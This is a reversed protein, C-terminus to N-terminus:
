LKTHSGCALEIFPVSSTAPDYGAGDLGAGGVADRCSERGALFRAPGARGSAHVQDALV